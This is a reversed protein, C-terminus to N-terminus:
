SNFIPRSIKNTLLNVENSYCPSQLLTHIIFTSYRERERERERMIIYKDEKEQELKSGKGCDKDNNVINM